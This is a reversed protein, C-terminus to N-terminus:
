KFRSLDIIDSDVNTNQLMLKHWVEVSMWRNGLHSLAAIEAFHHVVLLFVLQRESKTKMTHITAVKKDLQPM